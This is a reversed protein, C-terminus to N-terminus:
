MYETISCLQVLVKKSCMMCWKLTKRSDPVQATGELGPDLIVKRCYRGVQFWFQLLEQDLRTSILLRNELGPIFLEKLFCQMGFFVNVRLIFTAEVVCANWWHLVAEELLKFAADLKEALFFAVKWLAGYYKVCSCAGQLYNKSPNQFFFTRPM